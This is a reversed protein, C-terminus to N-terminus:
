FWGLWRIALLALGALAGSNILGGILSPKAIQPRRVSYKKFVKFGAGPILLSRLVDGVTLKAQKDSLAIQARRVALPNMVYNCNVCVSAGPDVVCGCNSCYVKGSTQYHYNQPRVAWRKKQEEPELDIGTYKRVFRFVKIVGNSEYKDRRARVLRQGERLAQPNVVYNCHVCVSANKYIPQGCNRCFCREPDLMVERALEELADEDADSYPQQVPQAQQPQQAQMAEDDSITRYAVDIIESDTDFSHNKKM